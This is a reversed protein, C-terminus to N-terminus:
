PCDKNRGPGGYFFHTGWYDDDNTVRQIIDYCGPEHGTGLVPIRLYNSSDVIEVKRVYSAKRYWQQWQQPFRGSGMQTTTHQGNSGRNVIEGGWDVRSARVKLYTFLSSPWYGVYEGNLQMWWDGDKGDKWILITLEQQSGDTQSTPSLSGGIAFKNNTQVFGSCLNYCGTTQYADSTWYIFLRTNTDGYLDKYVQWGAEITNLGSDYTGGIIWTQTLSFENSEQVRPNWLNLASKSGYYEGSTSAVAYEHHENVALEDDISTLSAFRYGKKKGYNKVSGARLVDEVKTRRIPITGMACKGNSHWLQTTTSSSPDMSTNKMSSVKIDNVNPNPYHNPRMKITHNKLLPHDFAPQHSILVCDIIDGDPSNISKVPPKNLNKLLKQLEVNERSSSFRSNATYCLRAVMFVYLVMVFPTLSSLKMNTMLLSTPNSTYSM